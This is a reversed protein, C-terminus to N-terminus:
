LSKYKAFTLCEGITELAPDIRNEEYYGLLYSIRPFSKSKGDITWKRGILSNKSTMKFHLSLEDTSSTEPQYVTLVYESNSKSYRTLYCLKGLMKLRREAEAGTISQHYSPDEEMMDKERVVKARQPSSKKTKTPFLERANAM